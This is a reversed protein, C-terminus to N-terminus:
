VGGGGVAAAHDDSERVDPQVNVYHPSMLSTAPPTPVALAGYASTTTGGFTGAAASSGWGQQVNTKAVEYREGLDRGGFANTQLGADGANNTSRGWGMSISTENRKHEADKTGARHRSSASWGSMPGAAAGVAQLRDLPMRETGLQIGKSYDPRGPRASLPGTRWSLPTRCQGLTGGSSGTM